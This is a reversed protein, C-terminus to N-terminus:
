CYSAVLLCVFLLYAILLLVCVASRLLLLGLLGPQLRQHVGEGLLRLSPLLPLLYKITIPIMITTIVTFM